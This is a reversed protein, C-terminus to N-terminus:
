DFDIDKEGIGIVDSCDAKISSPWKHYVGIGVSFLGIVQLEKGEIFHDM